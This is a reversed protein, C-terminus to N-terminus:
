QLRDEAADKFNNLLNYTEQAKSYLEKGGEM